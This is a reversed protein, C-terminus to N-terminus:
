WFGAMHRRCCKAPGAASIRGGLIIANDTELAVVCRKKADVCFTVAVRMGLRSLMAAAGLQAIFWAFDAARQVSRFMMAVGSM